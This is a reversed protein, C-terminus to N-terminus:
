ADVPGVAGDCGCVGGAAHGCGLKLDAYETWRCGGPFDGLGNAWDAPLTDHYQNRPRGHLLSTTVAGLCSPDAHVAEGDFFFPIGKRVQRLTLLVAPTQRRQGTHRGGLCPPSNDGWVVYM